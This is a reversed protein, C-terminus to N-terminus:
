MPVVGKGYDVPWDLSWGRCIQTMPLKSIDYGALELPCKGRIRPQADETFPTFRYVKEFVALYLRATEISDFGRFNQYHQDFRGIIREVANNTRPIISSEIGNVLTPWHRELSAFICETAPNLGEYISRLNMVQAFRKEATRRTKAKFIVNIKEKLTVAEPCQVTYKRGYVDKIQKHFWQLAHFICEHHRTKPFVDKIAPGYEKRLDTVIVCPKYGKARLALLFARTSDATNHKYIAIHLLDYTYVDIAMYVYMWRRSQHQESKGAGRPNKEPVQVWKEDIGAVGSTRLVGFMAAIPLFESGFASVWKYVQSTRVGLAQATRRYSSRSWSYMELAQLHMEFPYPSYPLLGKPMYTFSGYKCHHNNCYYRYVNVTCWQGKDDQYRKPRPKRSKIEADESGCYICRIKGDSDITAGASFLIWNIKKAWPVAPPEPPPILDADACIEQLQSVKMREEPTLVEGAELKSLLIEIQALLEHVLGEDRPRICDPSIVFFRNLTEKLRSWGSELAAQRVQAHTVNINQGKMYKYVKKQSWWPFRAMVDAIQNKLETTLVEASRLSLLNAWDCASVWKEWRSVEPQTVGFWLAIKQQSILPRRGDRTARGGKRETPGELQRIFLIAMRLWFSNEKKITLNFEGQLRVLYEGEVEKVEVLSPSGENKANVQVQAIAMSGMAKVSAGTESSVDHDIWQLLSAAILIMLSAWRLREIAWCAYRVEPLQGAVPCVVSIGLLFWKLCPMALIWVPLFHDSLWWMLLLFITQVMVQFLTRRVYLWGAKIFVRRRIETRDKHRAKKMRSRFPSPLIVPRPPYAKLGASEELPQGMLSAAIMSLMGIIYLRNGLWGVGNRGIKMMVKDVERMPINITSLFM